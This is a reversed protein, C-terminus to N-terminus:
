LLIYFSVDSYFIDAEDIANIIYDNGNDLVFNFNGNNLIDDSIKTNSVIFLASVFKLVSESLSMMEYNVTQNNIRITMNMWEETNFRHYYDYGPLAFTFSSVNKHYRYFVQTEATLNTKLAEFFEEKDQGYYEKYKTFCGRLM